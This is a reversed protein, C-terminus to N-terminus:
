TRGRLLGEAREPALARLRKAIRRVVSGRDRLEDKAPYTITLLAVLLNVDLMKVDISLLLNNCEEFDGALLLDDVQDFLLDIADDIEEEQVLAYLDYLWTKTAANSNASPEREEGQLSSARGGLLERLRAILGADKGYGLTGSPPTIQVRESVTPAQPASRGFTFHKFTATTM